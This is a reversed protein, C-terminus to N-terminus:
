AQNRESFPQRAMVQIWGVTPKAFNQGPPVNRALESALDRQTEGLTVLMYAPFADRPQLSSARTIYM